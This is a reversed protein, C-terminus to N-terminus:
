GSPPPGGSGDNGGGADGGASGDSWRAPARPGSHRAAWWRGVPWCAMGILVSTFHGVDTFTRGQVLAAGYFALVCFGYAWRAWRWPLRFTLVGQVGALAYSVGIDRVFVDHHPAHGYHIALLLVGESLYTAGVHAVACVALWRGTGLWREAPVHFLNYLVFYFLWTGGDLYMASGILVRVPDKWLNHINTSRRELFHNEFGPSLHRVVYTTILLITLWVFTGPARRVYHAVARPTARLIGM